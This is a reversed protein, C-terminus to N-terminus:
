GEVRLIGRRRRHGSQADDYRSQRSFGDLGHVCQERDEALGSRFQEPRRRDVRDPTPEAAEALGVIIAVRDDQVVPKGVPPQDALECMGRRRDVLANRDRLGVIRRARPVPVVERVARGDEVVVGLETHPGIGVVHGRVLERQRRAREVAGANNGVLPGPHQLSEGCARDVEIKTRVARRGAERLAPM